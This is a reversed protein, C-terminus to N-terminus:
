GNALQDRIIMDPAATNGEIETSPKYPAEPLSWTTLYRLTTSKGRDASRMYRGGDFKIRQVFKDYASTEDKAIGLSEFNM